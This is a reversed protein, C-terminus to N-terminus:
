PSVALGLKKKISRTIKKRVSFKHNIYPWFSLYKPNLLLRWFCDQFVPTLLGSKRLQQKLSASEPANIKELMYRYVQHKTKKHHRHVNSFNTDHIRFRSLAEPILAIKNTFAIQNMLYWDSFYFLKPDFGGYKLALEKKLIASITFIKFDQNLFASVVTEPTFVYPTVGTPFGCTEFILDDDRGYHFQTFVLGLEPDHQLLAMTKALFHPYRFDDAALYHIYTGKALSTGENVRELMGGNKEYFLARIRKDKAMYERIIDPSGDTSGDDIILFEFDQFSQELISEIAQRIFSAYNYSPMMITLLPTHM